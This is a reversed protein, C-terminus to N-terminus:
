DQDKKRKGILYAGALGALLAIGEGVPTFIDQGLNYSWPNDVILKDDGYGRNNFEDDDMIFIQAMAPAAALMLVTAIAIIRKKM